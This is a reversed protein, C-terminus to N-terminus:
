MRFVEKMGECYDFSRPTRWKLPFQVCQSPKVEHIKCGSDSLFVCVEDQKKKLVIKRRDLIECFRDLFERPDLDLYSAYEDVEKESLYVFGPQKCCENCRLCVFKELQRNLSNM